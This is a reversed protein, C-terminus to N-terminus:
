KTALWVQPMMPPLQLTFCHETLPLTILWSSAGKKRYNESVQQHHTTDSSAATQTRQWQKSSSEEADTWEPCYEDEQNLIRDRLPAIILQSCQHQRESHRSPLRVGLRAPLDFLACELTTRHLIAQLHHFHHAHVRSLYTWKSLLPQAWADSSLLCCTTTIQSDWQPHLRQIEVGVSM